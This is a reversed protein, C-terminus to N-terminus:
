IHLKQVDERRFESTGCNEIKTYVMVELEKNVFLPGVRLDMRKCEILYYFCEFSRKKRNSSSFKIFSQLFSVM